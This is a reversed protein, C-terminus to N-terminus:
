GGGGAAGWEGGGGGGGWVCVFLYINVTREQLTATLFSIFKKNPRRGTVTGVGIFM